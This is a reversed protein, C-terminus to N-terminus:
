GEVYSIVLVYGQEARSVVFTYHVYEAPAASIRLRTESVEDRSYNSNRILKEIERTVGPAFAIMSLKIVEDLWKRVDTLPIKSDFWVAGEAGSHICGAHIVRLASGDKLLATLVLGSKSITYSKVNSNGAIRQVDIPPPRMTCEGALSFQSCAFLFLFVLISRM